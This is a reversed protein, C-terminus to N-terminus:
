AALWNFGTSQVRELLWVMGLAALGISAFRTFPRASMGRCILRLLPYVAAVFLLQGAEVGLNFGALARLLVMGSAGTQEMVSAFGLGHVLGFLFALYAPFQRGPLLNALGALVISAAIAIEVPASPLNLWGTVALSLTISHALTFATIALLMTQWAPSTRSGRMAAHGLVGVMLVALFALHDWGILVHHMGSRFFGAASIMANQNAEVSQGVRTSEGTTLTQLQAAASIVVHHNPDFERFLDYHVQWGASPSACDFRYAHRMFVGDNRRVLQGTTSSVRNATCPRGTPQDPDVPQISLFGPLYSAIAAQRQRVEGWTLKGDLNGDLDLVMDLDRLAVDWQVRLSQADALADVTIYARSPQHAGASGPLWCATVMGLAALLRCFTNTIRSTM